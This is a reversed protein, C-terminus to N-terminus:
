NGSEAPPSDGGRQIKMKGASKESDAKARFEELRQIVPHPEPPADPDKVGLYRLFMRPLERGFQAVANPFVDSWRQKSTDMLHERMTFAVLLLGFTIALEPDPHHIEDRHELFLQVVQRFNAIELQFARRRFALDPHRQCLQYLPRLLGAHAKHAAITSLIAIYAKQRLSTGEWLETRGLNERSKEAVRTHYRLAM